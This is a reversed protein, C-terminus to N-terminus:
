GLRRRRIWGVCTTGLAGLVLAGPAPVTHCIQVDKTMDLPIVNNQTDLYKWSNMQDTFTPSITLCWNTTTSLNSLIGGDSNNKYRWTGGDLDMEGSDDALAVTTGTPVGSFSFAVPIWTNGDQNNRASHHMVLSVNGADEYLYLKSVLHEFNSNNGSWTHPNGYSYYDTASMGMQLPHIAYSSGDQTLTYGALAPTGAICVCVALIGIMKKMDSAGGFGFTEDGGM